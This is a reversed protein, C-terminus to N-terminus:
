WYIEWHGKHNMLGHGVLVCRTQPPLQPNFRCVAQHFVNGIVLNLQGVEYKLFKSETQKLQLFFNQEDESDPNMGHNPMEAKDQETIKQPGTYRAGVALESPPLSWLNLGNDAEPLVLPLTFTLTKQLQYNAKLDPPLHRFQLDFHPRPQTMHNDHIVILGTPGLLESHYVPANLMSSLRKFVIDILWGNKVIDFTSNKRSEIYKHFDWNPGNALYTYLAGGHRHSGKKIDFLLTKNENKFRDVQADNLVQSLWVQATQCSFFQTFTRYSSLDAIVVQM